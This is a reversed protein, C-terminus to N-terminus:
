DAYAQLQAFTLRCNIWDADLEVGFKQYFHIAPENWNLVQWELRHMKRDRAIRILQNLLVKGVGQGRASETVIIDDLYICKGKWTSYKVYFLMMGVVVDEIEAVWCEFAPQESFGDAQLQEVTCSHEEPAREYTALEHILGHVAVMDSAVAPRIHIDAM